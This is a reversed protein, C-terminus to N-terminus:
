RGRAIQMLTFVPYRLEVRGDAHYVLGFSMGIINIPHNM